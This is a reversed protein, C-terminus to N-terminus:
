YEKIISVVMYASGDYVYYNNPQIGTIHIYHYGKNLKTTYMVPYNDFENIGSAQSFPAWQNIRDTLKPPYGDIHVHATGGGDSRISLLAEIRVLADRELYIFGGLGRIPQPSSNLNGGAGTEIMSAQLQITSKTIRRENYREDRLACSGVHIEAQTATPGTYNHSYIPTVVDIAEATFYSGTGGSSVKITHIGLPLGEIRLGSGPTVSGSNMSLTGNTSNYSMGGYTTITVSPYNASTLAVGDLLVPCANRRDSSTYARVECATGFFTYEYSGTNNIDYWTNGEMFGDSISPGNWGSNMNFERFSHKRLVGQAIRNVGAISNPVYDAMINYTALLTEDNSLEPTKPEYVIFSNIGIAQSGASRTVKVFHTGYPLGSVVPIIATGKVTPMNPVATGDVEISPTQSPFNTEDLSHVIDLGTGVFTFYIVENTDPTPYIADRDGYHAHKFDPTFFSKAFMSTSGDSLTYQRYTTTGNTGIVSLDNNHGSGFGRFFLNQAVEEKSHDAQTGYKIATDTATLRKKVSGKSDLYIAVKGGKTGLADSASDFGSNYPITVASDLIVRAGNNLVAGPNIRINSTENIVEYGTILLSNASASKIKITHVDQALGKVVNVVVNPSTYRSNYLGTTNYSVTFFAGNDVSASIDRAVTTPFVLLNFATGFFTIEMVDSNPYIYLYPATLLDSKELGTKPKGYIRVHDYIDNVPKYVAENNPGREHPLLELSGILSVREIGFHAKLDKTPDVMKARNTIDTYPVTAYELEVLPKQVNALLEQLDSAQLNIKSM